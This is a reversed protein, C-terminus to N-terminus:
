KLSRAQGKELVQNRLVLLRPYRQRAKIGVLHVDLLVPRVVCVVVFALEGHPKERRVHGPPKGRLVARLKGIELLIEDVEAVCLVVEIGGQFRPKGGQVRQARAGVADARM